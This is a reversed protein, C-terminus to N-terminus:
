SPKRSTRRAMLGMVILAGGAILLAGNGNLGTIVLAIGGLIMLGQFETSRHDM